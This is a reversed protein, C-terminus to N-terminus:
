KSWRLALRGILPYCSWKGNSCQWGFIIALLLSIGYQALFLLWLLPFFFFAKPVENKNQAATPITAFMLVMFSIFGIMVAATILLQWVLVQISHFRVYRSDRKVILVVLPPVFGGFIQLIHPLMASTREEHTPEYLNPNLVATSANM